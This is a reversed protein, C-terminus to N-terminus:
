QTDAVCFTALAGVSPTYSNNPTDLLGAAEMTITHTGAALTGLNVDPYKLYVHDWAGNDRLLVRDIGDVFLRWHENDENPQVCLTNQWNDPCNLEAHGVASRLVVVVEQSSDLDFTYTHSQQDPYGWRLENALNDATAYHNYRAIQIPYEDPCDGQAEGPVNPNAPDEPNTPVTGPTICTCPPQLPDNPDADEVVVGIEYISCYTDRGDKVSNPQDARGVAQYAVAEVKYYGPALDWYTLHDAMIEYPATYDWLYGMVMHSGGNIIWKVYDVDGAVNARVNFRDSETVNLVSGDTLAALDIPHNPDTTDELTFGTVQHTCALSCGPVTSDQNNSLDPDTPEAASVSANGTIACNDPNDVTTIVTITASAGTNMAGLDCAIQSMDCKGQTPIASLVTVDAPIPLQVLAGQGNTVKVNFPGYNTVTMTYTLVEGYKTITPVDHNIKIALDAEAPGEYYRTWTKSPCPDGATVTDFTVKANYRGEGDASMAGWDGMAPYEVEFEHAGTGTFTGSREDAPKSPDNPFSMTLTWAIDEDFGDVNVVLTDTEGETWLGGDGSSLTMVCTPEVPEEPVEPEEIPPAPEEEEGCVDPRDGFADVVKCYSETVGGGLYVGVLAAMAMAGAITPMYEVIAQGVQLRALLRKFM